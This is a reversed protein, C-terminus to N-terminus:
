KRPVCVSEGKRSIEVRAGGPNSDPEIGRMERLRVM